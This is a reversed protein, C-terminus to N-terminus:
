TIAGSKDYDFIDFCEKIKMVDEGSLGPKAYKSPDFGPIKKLLAERRTTRQM